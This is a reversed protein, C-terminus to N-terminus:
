DLLAAIDRYTWIDNDVDAAMAPTMTYGGRGQHAHRATARLQIAMDHLSV